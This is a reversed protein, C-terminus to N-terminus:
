ARDEVVPVACVGDECVPAADDGVMQLAPTPEDPRSM